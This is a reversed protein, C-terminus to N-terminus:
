KTIKNEKMRAKIVKQATKYGIQYIEISKDMDFMDYNSIGEPEILIDCLDKDLVTNSRYIFNYTRMAVGVITKNYESTIMPSVNVGIVQECDERITSVPFNQLVGGDVYNHGNIVRPKFLIPVSSSAMVADLLNGKSFIEIHGTDLNTAVIRLPIKLEEFTRAKLKSKLYKEFPDMTFFGSNPRQLKTMKRFEVNEFIEAIEDPSKGDAYLAGVISGASVGSIINPRVGVGELAKIVGAHSMGKIGGGSLALGVEYPKRRFLNSLENIIGSKAM